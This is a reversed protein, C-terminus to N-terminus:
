DLRKIANKVKDIESVVQQVIPLELAKYIAKIEDQLEKLTDGYLFVGETLHTDDVVAGKDNSSVEVVQYWEEKVDSYLRYGKIIRYERKLKVTKTFNDKIKKDTKKTM